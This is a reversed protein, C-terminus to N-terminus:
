SSSRLNLKKYKILSHIDYTSVSRLLEEGHGTASIACTLNNAYTGAGIIPTDSIRGPSQNVMGGTSTAAALNGKSDIAVAGVTGQESDHDLTMEKNELKKWSEFKEQTDFYDNEVVPLGHQKGFEEAEVSTLIGHESKEMVLRALQIPNQIRRLQCTGGYSLDKGNMISASLIHTGDNCYVAGKGANYVYNDEFLSVVSEVADLSAGGTSLIETGKNLCDELVEKRLKQKDLSMDKTIKGAGGHIALAFRDSM